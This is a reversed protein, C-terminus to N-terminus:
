SLRNWPEDQPLKMWYYRSTGAYDLCYSLGAADVGLVGGVNISLSGTTQSTKTHEMRALGIVRTLPYETWNICHWVKPTPIETVAVSLTWHLPYKKQAQILEPIDCYLLFAGFGNIKRWLIMASAMNHLPFPGCVHLKRDFLSEGKQKSFISQAWTMSSLASLPRHLFLLKLFSIPMKWWLTLKIVEERSPPLYRLWWRGWKRWVEPLCVM